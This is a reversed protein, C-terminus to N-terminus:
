ENSNIEFNLLFNRTLNNIDYGDKWVKNYGNQAIIDILCPNNLLNKVKDVLEQPTNFYVAESDPKFLEALHISYESILVRKVAPIEFCRRTYTDQNLKSLFCLCLKAGSLAKVYNPGIAQKVKLGFPQGYDVVDWQPGGWVRVNINAARLAKIYLERGDPEYHGVFVVDTQYAELKIKDKTIPHHLKPDFWMPFLEVRNCGLLKLHKINHARKVLHYDIVPATHLFTRWLRKHHWPIPAGLSPGSFDDHCYSCYTLKKRILKATLLPWKNIRIGHWFIIIESKTTILKILLFCNFLFTFLFNISFKCEIRGVPNSFFNFWSLKEVEVNNSQLGNAFSQEYMEYKWEGVILINV